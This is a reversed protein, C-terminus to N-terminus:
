MVQQLGSARRKIDQGATAFADNMRRLAPVFSDHWDIEFQDRAPGEWLTNALTNTVATIIEDINGQKLQLNDGLLHLQEVNGGM